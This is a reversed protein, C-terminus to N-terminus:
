LTSLKAHMDGSNWFLAQPRAVVGISVLHFYSMGDNSSSEPDISVHLIGPRLAADVFWDNQTNDRLPSSEMSLDRAHNVVISM